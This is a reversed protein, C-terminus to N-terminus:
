NDSDPNKSMWSKIRGEAKAKLHEPILENYADLEAANELKESILNRIALEIQEIKEDYHELDESVESKKNDDYYSIM